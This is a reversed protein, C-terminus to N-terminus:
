RKVFLLNEPNLLINNKSYLGGDNDWIYFQLAYEKYDTDIKFSLVKGDNSWHHNNIKLTEKNKTQKENEFEYIKLYIVESKIMPESFELIVTDNKLNTFTKNDTNVIYPQSITKEIDKCWKLLPEYLSELQKSESEKYLELLKKSFVNQAIFGRTVNQKQWSVIISDTAIQPFCEKAFLDYVAWTMYENFIAIGPYGSDKDWKEFDFNNRILESYKDSISNVYGHDIETFITHNESIRNVINDELKGLILEESINPFDVSAIGDIERHCNQGGVLPSIAIIYRNEIIEEKPKPAIKDLFEFSKDIFYFEKYNSIIQDYFNKKALFFSRYNSKEIFDNILDLYKDVEQPGFSNFLFDRKLKGKENFSFAFIDTRFGLFKKWDIRSYNASDLLPHNKVPEFYEIIDTYYPPIKQVDWPDTRGYKTLALIINGLEYSETIEVEINRQSYVNISTLLLIALIIKKM